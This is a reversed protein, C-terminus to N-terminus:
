LSRAMKWQSQPRRDMSSRRRHSFLSLIFPAFTMWVRYECVRLARERECVCVGERVQLAWPEYGDEEVSALRFNASEIIYRRASSQTTGAASASSQIAAPAASSTSSTATASATGPHPVLSLSVSELGLIRAEGEHWVLCVQGSPVTIIHHVGHQIVKESQSIFAPYGDLAESAVRIIASHFM